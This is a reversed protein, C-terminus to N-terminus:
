YYAAGIYRGGSIIIQRRNSNIQGRAYHIKKNRLLGEITCALLKEGEREADDIVVIFGAADLREVLEAAAMRSFATASTWAPPGDILLLEITNRSLSTFDYGSFSIQNIRKPLLRARIVQHSVKSAITDAWLKDHEITTINGKLAKVKALADFLLTTQGAGLEVVEKIPFDATIRLIIYFLGYNAAGGVPYFLDDIGRRALDRCALQQYVPEMYPALQNSKDGFIVRDITYRLRRKLKTSISTHTQMLTEKSLQVFTTDAALTITHSRCAM